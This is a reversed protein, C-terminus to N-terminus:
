AGQKHFKEWIETLDNSISALLQTGSLQWVVQNLPFALHISSGEYTQMQWSQVDFTYVNNSETYSVKGFQNSPFGLVVLDQHNSQLANMGLYHHTFAWYTAVNVILVVQM